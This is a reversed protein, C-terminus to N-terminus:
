RSQVEDLRRVIDDLRRTIGDLATAVVRQDGMRAATLADVQRAVDRVDSEILEARHRAQALETRTHVVEAQFAGWGILATAVAPLAALLLPRLWDIAKSERETDQQDSM